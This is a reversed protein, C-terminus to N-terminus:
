PIHILQSGQCMRSHISALLEEEKGRKGAEEGGKREEKKPILEHIDTVAHYQLMKM